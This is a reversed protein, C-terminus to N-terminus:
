AWRPSSETMEELGRARLEEGVREASASVVQLRPDPLTKRLYDVFRPNVEFALLLADAPMQELLARTMTGTGPGFEVVCRAEALPLPAVMARTLHGSSPVLSATTRLRTLAEAAFIRLETDM